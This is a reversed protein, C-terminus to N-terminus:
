GCSPKGRLCDELPNLHRAMKLDAQAAAQDGAAGEVRSRLYYLQWNRDERDIAQTFWRAAGAPDGQLESLLGLQVYPSAAWPEISRATDAHEVANAIEGAAAADNSADIEREVLLPGILAIATLWAVALAAVTFRFRGDGGTTGADLGAVPSLQRCRAAVLAGSALFFVSGVAAIEWFWDLAAGVAFAAMAALLVAYLDSQRGSAARWAALGTWLLTLVLALVLLGGALGLESFAELYLSHANHLPLDLTRLREWAFEYTGSGGGLLPKEGFSEVAVGWFDSRGASSLDTLQQTAGGPVQVDPDTFEDWARGGVAVAAGIAVVVLALGAIRLTVPNRSLEVARGSLRGERREEWRLAAFLLVALVMGALLIPLVEVGQDVTEQLPVNDTLAQRAQV